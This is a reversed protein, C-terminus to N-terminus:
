FTRHLTRRCTSSRRAIRAWMRPFGTMLGDSRAATFVQETNRDLRGLIECAARSLPRLSEGTKTDGLIATRRVLDVERWTLGIAEGTRWGTIALFSAAALAPPWIDGLSAVRIADGFAKYEDESLRRMRRRDAFREIGRVPNDARMGRRVAYSFISGLLGVTRTAAGKGGRVISLGRKKGTKMRTATKGEAVSHMFSEIDARSVSLVARRGLLPKIHREARSEDTLLTSAKKPM